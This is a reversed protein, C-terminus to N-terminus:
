RVTNARRSPWPKAEASIGLAARGVLTGGGADCASLVAPLASPRAAVRLLVEGEGARQGSRQQGWLVADDSVVDVGELGHERMLTAVAQARRAAQAGM